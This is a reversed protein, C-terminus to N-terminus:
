EVVLDRKTFGIIGIIVGLCGLLTIVLATLWDPNVAPVLAIHYLLSTNLLNQNWNLSPGIMDLLVSWAFVIYMASVTLRPLLGFVAIGIGLICLNAPLINIGAELLSSLTVTAGQLEAGIYTLIGTLMALLALVIVILIIRGLLWRTRSQPAVLINDAYGKAEDDRIASVFNIVMIMTIIITLLFSVGLFLNGSGTSSSNAISKVVHGVSHSATIVQETSKTVAGWLFAGSSIGLIWTIISGMNERLGLGFVSHLLYFKSKAKTNAIIISSEIDRIGSLFIAFCIFIITSLLLPILWLISLNTLPHIKETWGLFSFNVLFGLSSTADGIGRLFFSIGLIGVTYQGVKKNDSFLQSLFAVLSICLAAPMICALVISFCASISFNVGKSQGAIVVIVAAIFFIIGLIVYLGILAQCVAKRKTTAGTLFLELRGANEDSRFAKVAVIVAWIAGAITLVGLSKWEAIGAVTNLAYPEGFIIKFGVNNQLSATVLNLSEQTPFAKVTGIAQSAIYIGFVVGWIIGSVLNRKLVFLLLVFKSEKFSVIRKEINNM